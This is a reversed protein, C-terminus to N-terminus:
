YPHPLFFSTAVPSMQGNQRTLGVTQTQENSADWWWGATVVANCGLSVPLGWQTGHVPGQITTDAAIRPEARPFIAPFFPSMLTHLSKIIFSRTNCRPSSDLVKLVLSRQVVFYIRPATPLKPLVQVPSSKTFPGCPSPYDSLFWTLCSHVGLGVGVWCIKLAFVKSSSTTQHQLPHVELELAASGEPADLAVAFLEFWGLLAPPAVRRSVCCDPGEVRPPCGPHVVPWQVPVFNPQVPRAASPDGRIARWCSKVVPPPALSNAFSVDHNPRMNLFTSTTLQYLIWKLSTSKVNFNVSIAPGASEWHPGLYPGTNQPDHSVGHSM